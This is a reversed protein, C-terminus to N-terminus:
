KISQNCFGNKSTFAPQVSIIEHTLRRGVQPALEYSHKIWEAYEMWCGTMHMAHMKYGGGVQAQTPWSVECSMHRGCGLKTCWQQVNSGSLTEHFQKERALNEGLQRAVSLDKARVQRKLAM